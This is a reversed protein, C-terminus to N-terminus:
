KVIIKHDNKKTEKSILNGSFDYIHITKCPAYLKGEPHGNPYHYKIIKTGGESLKIEEIYDNGKEAIYDM